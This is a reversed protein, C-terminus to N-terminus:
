PRCARCPTTPLDLLTVGEPYPPGPVLVGRDLCVQCAFRDVEEAAILFGRVDPEIRARVKDRVRWADRGVWVMTLLGSARPEGYNSQAGQVLIGLTTNRAPDPAPTTATTATPPTAQAGPAEHLLRVRGCACRPPGWPTLCYSTDPGQRFLGRVMMGDRGDNGWEHAYITTPDFHLAVPETDESM